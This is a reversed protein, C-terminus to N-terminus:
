NFIWWRSVSPVSFLVRLPFTRESKRLTKETIESGGHHIKKRPFGRRAAIGAVAVTM